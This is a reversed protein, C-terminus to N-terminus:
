NAIARAARAVIPGPTAYVEALLRDIEAATVPNVDAQIKEADALFAQDKMTADFAAILAQQRDPPIGPPAAYPRAMAQGALILRVVQRQEDDKVLDTVAPVAAIEAEKRLGLQVPMNVRGARLWDMHRAKATSWSVGCVGAVEGREMALTADSTGPYGSVLKLKVGFVNRLMLAFIDPDAQSGLGAMTFSKELMDEYTKIPSAYWTMCVSVDSSISGLWSFKRADFPAEAILPAVAMSRSLTGIVSGDKPAANYLYLLARQSGAGERNQPLISPKGPIHNGLHRALLRAYLDYGGGVSFGIALTVTRGRYFAEVSQAAAPMAALTMLALLALLTVAGARCLSRPHRM